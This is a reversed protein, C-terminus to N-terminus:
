FNILTSFLERTITKNVIRRFEEEFDKALTHSFTRIRGGQKCM